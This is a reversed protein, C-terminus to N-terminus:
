QWENYMLTHISVYEVSSNEVQMQPATKKWAVNEAM